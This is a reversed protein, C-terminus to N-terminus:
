RPASVDAMASTEAMAAEFSLFHLFLRCIRPEDHQPTLTGAKIWLNFRNTDEGITLGSGKSSRM